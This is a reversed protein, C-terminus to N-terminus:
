LCFFNYISGDWNYEATMHARCGRPMENLYIFVVKLPDKAEALHPQLHIAFFFFFFFAYAFSIPFLYIFLLHM